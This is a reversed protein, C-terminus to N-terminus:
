EKGYRAKIELAFQVALDVGLCQGFGDIKNNLVSM